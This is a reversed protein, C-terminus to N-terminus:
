SGGGTLNTLQLLNLLNSVQLLPNNAISVVHGDIATLTAGIGGVSQDIPDILARIQKLSSSASAIDGPLGRVRTAVSGYASSIDGSQSRIAAVAQGIDDVGPRITGVSSTIGNVATEISKVHRYITTMTSNIHATDADVSAAATGITTSSAKIQNTLRVTNDLAPLLATNAQVSGIVPKIAHDVNADIQVASLVTRTLFALAALAFAFFIVLNVGIARRPVIRRHPRATLM